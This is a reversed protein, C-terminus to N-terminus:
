AVVLETVATMGLKDFYALRPRKRKPPKGDTTSKKSVVFGNLKMQTADEDEDDDDAEWRMSVSEDEMKKKMPAWSFRAFDPYGFVSDVFNKELWEKCKPDSPYGSGFDNGGVPEYGPESYKWQSTMVDRSVKAVVSGASCPAYNADAKKEVVFRIGHGDFERELKNQYSGAIGVTDVYCTDIKVGADVVARIMQIASDHSMANLNYPDKRLMSRSIESAHLVRVVFGIDPIDKIKQFLEDRKEASLQKSDNFDKPIVNADTDKAWFAAGYVMPGLVPGRGAEDIGMVVPAGGGGETVPKAKIPIDSLLLPGSGHVDCPSPRSGTHLNDLAAVTEERDRRPETTKILFSSDYPKEQQQEESPNTSTPVDQAGDAPPVM